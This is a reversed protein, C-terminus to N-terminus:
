NEELAAPLGAQGQLAIRLAITLSCLTTGLAAFALAAYAWSLPLDLLPSREFSVIEMMTLIVNFLVLYAIVILINVGLALACRGKVSLRQSLIDISIHVGQQVAMVIGAAIMWPFLFAPLEAAWGLGGGQLLYRLAVNLSLGVLLVLTTSLLLLTCLRRVQLDLWHSLAIIRAQLTHTAAM